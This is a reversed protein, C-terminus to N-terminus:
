AVRGPRRAIEAHSPLYQIEPHRIVAGLLLRVARQDGVLASAPRHMLSDRFDASGPPTRDCSLACQCPKLRQQLPHAGCQRVTGPERRALHLGLHVRQAVLTRQQLCHFGEFPLSALAPERLDLKGPEGTKRGPHVVLKGHRGRRGLRAAELNGGVLQRGEREPLARLKALALEVFSDRDGLHRLRHQAEQRSKLQARTRM